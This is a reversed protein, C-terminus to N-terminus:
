LACVVCLRCVSSARWDFPADTKPESWHEPRQGTWIGTSLRSLLYPSPALIGHQEGAM